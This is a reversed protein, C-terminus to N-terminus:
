DNLESWDFWGGNDLESPFEVERPAGTQYYNMLKVYLVGDIREASLVPNIPLKTKVSEVKLAGNPVDTFDFTDKISDMEVHIKDQEFSYHIAGRSHFPSLYIKM